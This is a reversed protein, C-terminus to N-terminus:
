KTKDELTLQPTNPKSTIVSHFCAQVQPALADFEKTNLTPTWKFINRTPLAADIITALRYAEELAPGPTLERRSSMIVKIERANGIAARHTGKEVNPFALQVVYDRWQRELLKLRDAEARIADWQLVAQQLDM